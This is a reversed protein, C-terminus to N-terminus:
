RNNQQSLVFSCGTHGDMMCSDLNVDSGLVASIMSRDMECIERHEQALEHYPCNYTKLMASGNEHQAVEAMVGNESLAQALQQVRQTPAINQVVDTYKDALRQGVRQLILTAREQGEVAFVEELMMLALDDCHCAFLKRAKDALAYIHHPRGVGSNVRERIVYGDSLLTTLHQRVATTTVGLLKEIEKITATQNRQLHELIQWIPADRDAQMNLQTAITM